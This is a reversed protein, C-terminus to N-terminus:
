VSVAAGAPQKSPIRTGILDLIRYLEKKVIPKALFDDMGAEVCKQRDEPLSNATVAVIPTQNGQALQRIARTAAYGDMGPMQCDMLIVDFQSRQVAAIAEFGDNAVEVSYGASELLSVAVKQNILNDEALLVKLLRTAPMSLSPHGQEGPIEEVAVPLRIDFSFKSGAGRESEVRLEGGMLRVIGDSISLGLGTGGYVRTTSSDAQMFPQFIAQQADRNIGIGSDQVSFHMCMAMGNSEYCGAIELEVFGNETFKIANSLLNLLVQQLRRQDGVLALPAPANITQRIQLGRAKAAPTVVRLIDEVFAHLCFPSQELVLKGADIKSSDLINNVLGLLADSCVRVTKIHEHQEATSSESALLDITGIIGNMPTRIEHSINAVFESKVRLAKEADSCAQQLRAMVEKESTIDISAGTIRAVRGTERQLRACTRIWMMRGDPRFYRFESTKIESSGTLQRFTLRVQALDDPHIKADLYTLNVETCAPDLGFLSAYGESVRLSKFPYEAEWVGFAATKEALAMRNANLQLLESTRLREIASGAVKAGAELLRAERACPTRAEPHFVAITGIVANTSDHIPAIWCSQYGACAINQLYVVQNRYASLGSGAGNPGIRFGDISQMFQHTWSPGAAEILQQEHRKRVFISCQWDREMHELAGTLAQLAQSQTAGNAVLELVRREEELIRTSEELQSVLSSKTKYTDVYDLLLGALPLGYAVLKLLHASNFHTDYLSSSGLGMYLECIIDPWLSLLLGHTFKNPYRRHILRFLPFGVLLYLAAPILDYPRPIPSASFQCQPLRQCTACYIVLALFCSGFLAVTALAIARERGKRFQKPLLVIGGGLLLILCGCLRSVTWTLPIFHDVDAVRPIFHDSAMIHFADLCGSWFLAAGLVPSLLKKTMAFHTFAILSTLLSLCVATWEMLNHLLTGRLCSVVLDMRARVPLSAFKLPDFALPKDPFALDVHFLHLLIPVACLIITGWLLSGPLRGENELNKGM